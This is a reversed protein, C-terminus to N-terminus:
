GHTKPGWRLEASYPSLIPWVTILFRNFLLFLLMLLSLGVAFVGKDETYWWCQHEGSWESGGEDRLSNGAWVGVEWFMSVQSVMLGLPSSCGRAGNTVAPKPGWHLCDDRGSVGNSGHGRLVVLVALSLMNTGPWSILEWCSATKNFYCGKTMWARLVEQSCKNFAQIGSPKKLPLLVWAEWLLQALFASLWRAIVFWKEYPGNILYCNAHPFCKMEAAARQFRFMTFGLFFSHSLPQM